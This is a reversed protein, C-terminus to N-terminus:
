RNWKESRAKKEQALSTMGVLLVLSLYEKKM